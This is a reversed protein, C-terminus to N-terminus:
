KSSVEVSAKGPIGQLLARVLAEVANSPNRRAYLGYQVMLPNPLGEIATVKRMTPRICEPTLLAIGLGGEVASQLAAISPSTFAIRWARGAATVAELMRERWLCPEASVVLDLQPRELDYGGGCVWQLGVWWTAVPESSVLSPVGVMVDLTGNRWLPEMAATIDVSVELSVTPHAQQFRGLAAALATLAIEEPLGVRAVGDVATGHVRTLAEDGLALIRLAYGLFVEGELTPRMGRGTRRLLPRGVLDELRRIQMSLASQTRGLADAAQTVSGLRCVTTFASLLHPDIALSKM